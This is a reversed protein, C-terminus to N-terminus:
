APETIYGTIASAAITAASALYIDAKTSGSRGKTNLTQQSLGVEGDALPGVVGLCVDCTSSLIQAGAKALITLIGEEAAQIYTNQTVPSVIFRVGEKIHKGELIKAAARLDEINGGACTGIICQNIKVGKVEAVPKCTFVEPPVAVMPKFESADYVIVKSFVADADSQIMEVDRNYNEKFWAVTKEDSQLIAGEAGAFGASGCLVMRSEISMDNIATGTYELIAGLAGDPGIDSLVKMWVDKGYVRPDLKGNIEIKITEPVCIIMKGTAYAEMVCSGFRGGTTCLAGIGGCLAAQADSHVVLDGPSIEGKEINVVHGIGETDYIKTVGASEAMQRVDRFLEVDAISRAPTNHDGNFIWREPHAPSVGMGKILGLPSAVANVGTFSYGIPGVFNEVEIYDGPKVPYGMYKSYIKETITQGM